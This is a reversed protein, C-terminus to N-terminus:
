ADPFRFSLPALNAAAYSDGDGTAYFVDTGRGRVPQPSLASRKPASV